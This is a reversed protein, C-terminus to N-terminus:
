LGAIMHEIAAVIEADSCDICTGKAPMANFGNLAHNKLVEKGQAIRPGWEAASGIKPAGSVGTSHCAICFTGYVTAGDRPGTAVVPTPESSALYVNGVPKIREAIAHKDADTIAWTGSSLASGLTIVLLNFLTRLM